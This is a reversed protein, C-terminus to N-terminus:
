CGTTHLFVMQVPTSLAQAGSKVKKGQSLTMWVLIVSQGLLPVLLKASLVQVCAQHEKFLIFSWCFSQPKMSKLCKEFNKKEAVGGLLATLDTKSIEKQSHFPWANSGPSDKGDHFLDQLSYSHSKFLMIIVCLGTSGPISSGEWHCLHLSRAVFFLSLSFVFIM